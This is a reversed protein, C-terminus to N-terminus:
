VRRPTRDATPRTAGRWPTLRPLWRPVNACFEEYAPGYTEHLTPEEYVQVFSAMALGIVVLYGFLGWSDFLLYREADM